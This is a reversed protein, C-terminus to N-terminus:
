QDAARYTFVSNTFMGRRPFAWVCEVRVMRLPPDASITSIVWQNTAYVINTKVVPIDLVEVRPPFNSSVLQDVPPYGLRDWKAARTQELGQLAMSNAALSYAAWESQQHTQIFGSVIGAMLIGAIALSMATEALTM